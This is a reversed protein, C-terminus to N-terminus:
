NVVNNSDQMNKDAIANLDSQILAFAVISLGFISLLLYVLGRDETDQRTPNNRQKVIELAVGVKYLWYINYIGCTILSLLLVTAGSQLTSDGSVLRVDDAILVQWVFWWLGCTILTLIIHIALNRKTIFM